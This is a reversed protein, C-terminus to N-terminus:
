PMPTPPNVRKASRLAILGLLLVVLILALWLLAPHKETFPRQDPRPQWSPNRREPSLMATPAAPQPASWAVYDYHPSRLADDGYLLVYNSTTKSEFCLNRELMELRVASFNIPADDGNHITVTWKEPADIYLQPADISLQEDDIRHGDQM